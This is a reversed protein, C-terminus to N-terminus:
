CLGAEQVLRQAWEADDGDLAPRPPQTYDIEEEYAGNRYVRDILSQIDLAVAPDTERLPIAIAPLRQRLPTPYLQYQKGLWARHVVAHYATRDEIPLMALPFSPLSPGARLLNIEVISVGARRLELQKRQYFDRGEGPLKNAISLFEIVTVVRGGSRADIIEIFAETATEDEIELTLPEAMAIAGATPVAHVPGPKKPTHRRVIRVDPYISRAQEPTLEVMLREDVRAIMGGTLQAQIDDCAYTCLKHHVDRWSQEMYPDMGPFPSTSM